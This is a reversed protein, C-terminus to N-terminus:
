LVTQQPYTKYGVKAEKKVKRIVNKKYMEEAIYLDRETLTNIDLFQDFDIKNFLRVETTSLLSLIGHKGKVARM